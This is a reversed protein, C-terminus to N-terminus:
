CAPDCWLHEFKLESTTTPPATYNQIRADVYRGAVGWYIGLWETDEFMMIESAELLLERRKDKDLERAQLEFLETLRPTEWGRQESWGNM